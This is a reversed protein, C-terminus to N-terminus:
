HTNYAKGMEGEEQNSRALLVPQFTFIIFGADPMHLERYSWM